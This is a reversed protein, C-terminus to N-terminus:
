PVVTPPSIALLKICEMCAMSVQPAIQRLEIRRAIRAPRDVAAKRRQARKEAPQVHRSANVGIRRAREDPRLASLVKRLNKARAIHCPQQRDVGRAIQLTTGALLRKGIHAVLRYEPEFSRM